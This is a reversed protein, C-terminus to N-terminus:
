LYSELAIFIRVVCTLMATDTRAPSSPRSLRSLVIADAAALASSLIMTMPIGIMCAPHM